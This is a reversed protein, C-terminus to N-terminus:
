VVSKRDRIQEVANQVVQQFTKSRHSIECINERMASLIHDEVTFYLESPGPTLFSTKM